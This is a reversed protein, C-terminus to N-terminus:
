KKKKNLADVKAMANEAASPKPKAGFWSRVTNWISNSPTQETTTASNNPTPTPTDVPTTGERYVAEVVTPDYGNAVLEETGYGQNKYGEIVSKNSKEAEALIANLETVSLKITKNNIQELLGTKLEEMTANPNAAIIDRAYSFDGGDISTNTGDYGTEFHAVAATLDKSKISGITTNETINKYGNSNLYKALDKGTYGPNTEGTWVSNFQSLSSNANLGTRTNGTQKAKIDAETAALSEEITDYQAFNGSADKLGSVNNVDIAKNGNSDPKTIESTSLNNGAVKIAEEYTKAKLVSNIVSSAVGKEALKIAINNIDTKTTKEEEILRLRENNVTLIEDARKKDATSLDTYANTIQNNLSNTYNITDQYQANIADTAIGRAMDVNGQYAQAVASLGAVEIAKQRTLKDQTGGIIRSSIPLNANQEQLSTFEATTKAIQPMLKQVEAVNTDLGYKNLTSTQLDVQATKNAETYDAKKKNLDNVVTQEPLQKNIADLQAQIGKNSTDLGAMLATPSTPDVNVPAIGSVPDTIQGSTLSTPLEPLKYIDVGSRYIQNENLGQLGAPNLIKTAGTPIPNPTKTYNFADMVNNAQEPNVNALQQLQKDMGPKLEIGGAKAYGALETPNLIKKGATTYYSGNQKYFDQAM